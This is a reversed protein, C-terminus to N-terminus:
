DSFRLLLGAAQAAPRSIATFQRKASFACVFQKLVSSFTEPHFNKESATDVSLQKYM